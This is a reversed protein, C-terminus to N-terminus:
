LVESKQQEYKGNVVVVPSGSLTIYDLEGSKVMEYIKLRTVKLEDAAATIKKLQRPHVKSKIEM